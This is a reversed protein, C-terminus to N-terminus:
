IKATQTCLMVYQDSVLIHVSEICTGCEILYSEVMGSTTRLSVRARLYYDQFICHSCPLWTCIWFLLHKRYRHVTEEEIAHPTPPSRIYYIGCLAQSHGQPNIRKGTSLVPRQQQQTLVEASATTIDIQHSPTFVILAM